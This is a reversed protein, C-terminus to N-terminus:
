LRRRAEKLAEDIDAETFRATLNTVPRGSASYFWFQPLSTLQKAKCVPAEWDPIILKQVVVRGGSQRALLEVYNGQRVSSHAKPFHFFVVNVRGRVLSSEIDVDEGRSIVYVGPSEVTRQVDFGIDIQKLMTAPETFERGDQILRVNFKEYGAFLVDNLSRTLLQASVKVPADLRLSKVGAAFEQHEGGKDDRLLFRRNKFGAFRGTVVQGDTLTLDDGWAGAAAAMIMMLIGAMRM